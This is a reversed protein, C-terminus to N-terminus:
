FLFDSQVPWHQPGKPLPKNSYKSIQKILFTLGMSKEPYRIGLLSGHLSEFYDRYATKARALMAISDFDGNFALKLSSAIDNIYHDDVTIKEIQCQRFFDYFLWCEKPQVPRSSKCIASFYKCFNITVDINYRPDMLEDLRSLAGPEDTDGFKNNTAFMGVSELAQQKEEALVWSPITSNDTRVGFVMQHFKDIQDLPFKADGNLVMFNERMESKLSSQYINVPVLCKSIDAGLIKCIIYLVVATHQGDWCVYKGPALPDVYVSIPMVKIAKFRDLINLAHIIMLMRQLTIDIVIKDLTVLESRCLKLDSWTQLQPNRLKFEEIADALLSQYYPDSGITQSLRDPITVYQSISKYFQKNIKDAYSLNSPSTLLEMSLGYFTTPFALIVAISQLTM